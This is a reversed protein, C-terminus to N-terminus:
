QGHKRSGRGDKDKKRAKKSPGAHAPSTVDSYQRAKRKVQQSSQPHPIPTAEPESLYRTLDGFNPARTFGWVSYDSPTDNEDELWRRLRPHQDMKGFTTPYSRYYVSKSIFIEIIDIESPLDLTWTGNDIMSEIRKKTSLIALYKQYSLRLSASKKRPLLRPHINLVDVMSRRFPNLDELASTSVAPGAAMTSHGLLPQVPLQSQTSSKVTSASPHPHSSIASVQEDDQM